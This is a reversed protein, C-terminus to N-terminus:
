YVKLSESLTEVNYSLLFITQKSTLCSHNIHSGKTQFVQLELTTHGHWVIFWPYQAKFEAYDGKTGWDLVQTGSNNIFM